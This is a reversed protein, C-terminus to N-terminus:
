DVRDVRDVRSLLLSFRKRYIQYAQISLDGILFVSLVVLM